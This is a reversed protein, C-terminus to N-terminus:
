ISTYGSEWVSVLEASSKFVNTQPVNEDAIEVDLALGNPILFTDGSNPDIWTESSDEFNFSWAPLKLDGTSIDLTLGIGKPLTQQGNFEDTKFDHQNGKENPPCFAGHYGVIPCLEVSPDEDVIELLLM